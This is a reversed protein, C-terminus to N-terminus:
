TTNIETSEMVIRLGASLSLFTAKQRSYEWIKISSLVTKGLM